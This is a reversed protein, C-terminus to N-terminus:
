LRPCSTTPLNVFNLLIAKERSHKMASKKHNKFSFRGFKAKPYVVPYEGDFGLM